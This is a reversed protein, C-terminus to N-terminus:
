YGLYHFYCFQFLETTQYNILQKLLQKGDSLGFVFVPELCVTFITKKKHKIDSHISCIKPNTYQADSPM